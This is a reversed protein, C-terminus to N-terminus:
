GISRSVSISGSVFGGAGAGGGGGGGGNSGEAGGGGGGGAVVLYEVRYQNPQDAFPVWQSNEADYWEPESTTSNQRIMGSAPSGPRQETTGIPLSLASAAKLLNALDRARSM